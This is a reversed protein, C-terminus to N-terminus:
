AWRRAIAFRWVNELRYSGDSRRYPAISAAIAERVADEGAVAIAKVCPGGSLLGRLATAEDPYAFAAAADAVITVDFGASEIIYRGGGWSCSGAAGRARPPSSRKWSRL